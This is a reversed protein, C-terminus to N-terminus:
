ASPGQRARARDATMLGILLWLGLGLQMRPAREELPAAWDPMGQLHSTIKEFTEFPNSGIRDVLEKGADQLRLIASRLILETAMNKIAVTTNPGLNLLQDLRERENALRFDGQSHAANNRLRRIITVARYCTEGVLGCLAASDARGSLSGGSGPYELFDKLRSKFYTPAHNALSQRLHESVIDAAILVAGRDSETMMESCAANLASIAEPTSFWDKNESVQRVQYKM